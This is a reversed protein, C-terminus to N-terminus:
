LFYVIGKFINLLKNNMSIKVPIKNGNDDITERLGEKIVCPEYQQM